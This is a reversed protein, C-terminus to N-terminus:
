SRCFWYSNQSGISQVVVTTAERHNAAVSTASRLLQKGIIMAADTFHYDRQIQAYLSIVQSAYAKTRDRLEQGIM